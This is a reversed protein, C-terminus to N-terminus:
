NMAIKVTLNSGDQTKKGYRNRATLSQGVCYGSYRSDSATAQAALKRADRLFHRPPLLEADGQRRHTISRSM